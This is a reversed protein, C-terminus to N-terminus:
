ERLHSVDLAGYFYSLCTGDGGLSESHAISIKYKPLFYNGSDIEIWEIGKIEFQKIFVMIEKGFELRVGQILIVFGNHVELEALLNNQDYSLFLSDNESYLSQYIDRKQDINKSEDGEFFQAMDIIQDDAKHKNDLCKRISDRDQNWEMKVSNIIFGKNPLYELNM